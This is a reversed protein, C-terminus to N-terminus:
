EDLLELIRNRMSEPETTPSFREIHSGDRSVLFKTFNWKITSGLPSKTQSKLHKFIPHTNKGNVEVKESLPFTVGFNKLCVKTMTEDTEPEQKFQSSPFGIVVLGKDKFEQHLSELQEFQGALGCRTATNVILLVKGSYTSMDFEKGSTNRYSYNYIKDM